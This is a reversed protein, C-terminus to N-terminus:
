YGTSAISKQGTLISVSHSTGIRTAGAELMSLATMYDRIGGSAKIGLRGGVSRAMLEIDSVTAGGTSFGTSTKVFQAGGRMALECGLIKEETKLLCTELIVKVPRGSAAHVVSRIDDLVLSSDGSKLATINIVMDLEDAGQEVAIKAGYSKEAVSNYGFPFGIVTAVKTNSLKLMKKAMRVYTPPVCVCFISHEQAEWFHREFDASLADPRLLTHDLVENIRSHTKSLTKEPLLKTYNPRGARRSDPGLM